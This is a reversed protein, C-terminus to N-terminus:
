TRGQQAINEVGDVLAVKVVAKCKTPSLKLCLKAKVQKLEKIWKELRVTNNDECGQDDANTSIMAKLNDIDTKLSIM